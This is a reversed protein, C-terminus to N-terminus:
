KIGSYFKLTRYFKLSFEWLIVNRDEEDDGWDRDVFDYM